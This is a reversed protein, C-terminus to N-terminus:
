DDHVEVTLSTQLNGVSANVIEGINGLDQRLMRAEAVNGYQAIIRTSKGALEGDARTSFARYGIKRLEKALESAKTKDESANIICVSINRRSRVSELDPNAFNQALTLSETNAIWDGNDAFSGPLMVFKIQDKPVDHAFNLTQFIDVNSMDTQINRQAIELLNNIHLWSSPQLMKKSAAQLFLQQRQIRGIDGLSDHRFRVFGMAQNGTLTHYGPELDIKLKGTWDMYNMKKPVYVTVGGLENVMEVLAQINMVVYHDIHVNLLNSVTERALEPGGILNASNIKRVGYRGVNAETDRPINIVSVSKHAPNLFVLMMTDSNGNLAQRDAQRRRSDTYVVDTGMFLVTVPQNLTGFQMCPFQQVIPQVIPAFTRSVLSVTNRGFPANTDLALWVVLGLLGAIIAWMIVKLKSM